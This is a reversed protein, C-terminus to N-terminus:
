EIGAFFEQFSQGPAMGLKKRLRYRKSEVSRESVNMLTAIEKTSMNLRLYSCLRIDNRTVTPFQSMIKSLLDDFIINFNEEMRDWCSEEKDHVILSRRLDRLEAIVTDNDKGEAILKDIRENVYKLVDSKRQIALDSDALQGSKRKIERNLSENHEIVSAKEQELRQMEQQRERRLREAERRKIIIRVMRRKVLDIIVYFLALIFIVFLTRAWWTEYWAARVHFKISDESTTGTITDRARVRFVYDGPDLRTLTRQNADTYPTWDSDYGEVFTSFRVAGLDHYEAISYVFLVDRRDLDVEFDDSGSKRRYLFTEQDTDATALPSVYELSVKKPTVAIIDPDVIYFGDDQNMVTQGDPLYSLNGLNMQLRHVTLSYHLKRVTYTSGNRVAYALEDPRHAWIDGGPTEFLRTSIGTPPFLRDLWNAKALRDSGPKLQYFGDAASIYVQGGIKTVLNNDDTPLQNGANYVRIDVAKAFDDSLRFSYVGQLWHSFWIRGDDGIEFNVTGEPIGDVKTLLRWRGAVNQLVAFGDYMSAVTLDDRGPYPRFGWTSGIGDIPVAHGDTVSYAGADAGCLLTSGAPSLTWIQGSVGSVEVPTFSTQSYDGPLQVYYLGQNTGLYLRDGVPMSAYGTGVTNVDSLITRFPSDFMIYSLGNDLAAWMNADADINIDLVTNNRLGNDRNLYHLRRTTRDYAILGHQITGLAIYQPTEAMCFIQKGRIAESIPAIDVASFSNDAFRYFGDSRTIFLVSGDSDGFAGRVHRGAIEESGPLVKVSDLDYTSINRETSIYLLSDIATIDTIRAPFHLSEVRNEHRKYVFICDYAQFAVSGDSFEEIDWIDKFRQETQPLLSSLSIYASQRLPPNNKFYGFEEFAGVYYRDGTKDCLVAHVNTHNPVYVMDWTMGNHVMLGVNNAVFVYGSRDVATQWNQPGANYDQPGFNRIAPFQGAAVFAALM